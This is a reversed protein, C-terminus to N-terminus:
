ANKGVSPRTIYNRTVNHIKEERFPALAVTLFCGIAIGWRVVGGGLTQCEPLIEIVRDTREREVPRWKVRVKCM